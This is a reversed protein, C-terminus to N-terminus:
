GKRRKVGGKGATPDDREESRKPIVMKFESMDRDSPAAGPRGHITAPPDPRGAMGSRRQQLQARKRAVLEYNYAADADGPRRRLLDAYAKVAADLHTIQDAISPQAQAARYRANAALLSDDAAALPAYDGSWYQADARLRGTTRRLEAGIAPVRGVDRLARDIADADTKAAAFELRALHRDADAIWQEIRGLTWLAGGTALLLAAAMARVIVPGM